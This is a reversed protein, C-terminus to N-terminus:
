DGGGDVEGWRGYGTNGFYILFKKADDCNRLEVATALKHSNHKSVQHLTHYSLFDNAMWMKDVKCEPRLTEAGLGALANM